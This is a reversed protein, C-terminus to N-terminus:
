AYVSIKKTNPARTNKSFRIHLSKGRGSWFEALTKGSARRIIKRSDSLHRAFPPCLIGISRGVSYSALPPVFIDFIASLARGRGPQLSFHSGKGRQCRLQALRIKPTAPYFPSTPFETKLCLKPEKSNWLPQQTRPLPPAKQESLRSPKTGSTSGPYRRATSRAAQPERTIQTVPLPRFTGRMEVEHQAIRVACRLADMLRCLNITTGLCRLMSRAPPNTTIAKQCRNELLIGAGDGGDARYDADNSRRRVRFVREPQNGFNGPRRKGTSKPTSISKRNKNM